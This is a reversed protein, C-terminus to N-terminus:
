KGWYVTAATNGADVVIRKLLVPNKEWGKYFPLVVATDTDDSFLVVKLLGETGAPAVTVYFGDEDTLGAALNVLGGTKSIQRGAVAGERDFQQYGPYMKRRSAEM